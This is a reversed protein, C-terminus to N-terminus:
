SSISSTEMSRSKIKIIERSYNFSLIKGGCMSGSRDIVLLIRSLCNENQKNSRFPIRLKVLSPATGGPSIITCSTM